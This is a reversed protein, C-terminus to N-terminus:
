HHVDRLSVKNVGRIRTLPCIIQLANRKIGEQWQPCIHLKVLWDRRFGKTCAQQLSQLARKRDGRMAFVSAASYYFDANNVGNIRAHGIAREAALLQAAAKDSLGEAANVLAATTLVFVQDRDYHQAKSGRLSAEPTLGHRNSLRLWRGPRRGARGTHTRRDRRGPGPRTGCSQFTEPPRLSDSSTISPVSDM